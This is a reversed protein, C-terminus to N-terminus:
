TKAAKYTKRDGNREKKKRLNNEENNKMGEFNLHCSM